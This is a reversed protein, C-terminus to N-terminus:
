LHSAYSPDYLSVAFSSESAEECGFFAKIAKFMLIREGVKSASERGFFGNGFSKAAANSMKKGPLIDFNQIIVFSFWLNKERSRYIGLKVVWLNKEGDAVALIVCYSCSNPDISQAIFSWIFNMSTTSVSSM